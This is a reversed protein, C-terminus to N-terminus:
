KSFVLNYGIISPNYHISYFIISYDHLRTFTIVCFHVLIACYHSLKEFYCSVKMNNEKLMAAIRKNSLKM